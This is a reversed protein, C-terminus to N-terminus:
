DGNKHNREIKTKRVVVLYFSILITALLLGPNGTLGAVKVMYWILMWIILDLILRSTSMM